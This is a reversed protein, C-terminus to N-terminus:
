STMEQDSANAIESDIAEGDEVWVGVGDKNSDVCELWFQFGKAEAAEALVLKSDDDLLSGERAFMIRITPDGAMAVSAASKLREAQSAQAFPIGNMTLTKADADYGMGAVPFAAGALLDRISDRISGLEAEATEVNEAEEEATEAAQKALRRTTEGELAEHHASIREKIPTADTPTHKKADEVAAAYEDRVVDLAEHAAVLSLQARAVQNEAEKAAEARLKGSELLESVQAQHSAFENNQEEAVDLAALLDDIQEEPAHRQSAPLNNVDEQLVGAAKSARDCERKVERRDEFAQTEQYELEGLSEALGTIALVTKVQEASKMELFAIPDAFQGTLNDLVAQPSKITSGDAAEITLSTKPKQDHYRQTWRRTVVIEGLDVVVEAKNEGERIPLKPSAKTGGLAAVMADILSSKGQANKGRVPVLGTATPHVRAASLRKFSDVELRVVTLPSSPLKSM